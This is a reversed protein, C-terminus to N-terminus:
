KEEFKAYIYRQTSYNYVYKYKILMKIAGLFCIDVNQRHTDPCDPLNFVHINLVAGVMGNWEMGNWEMGNWEMGNWEMGNWEMGDWGMGDWGMGDWGMGDWGM